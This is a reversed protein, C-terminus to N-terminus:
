RPQCSACTCFRQKSVRRFSLLAGHQKASSVGPSVTGDNGQGPTHIDIVGKFFVGEAISVPQAIVNGILSGESGINVRESADINGQVEGLVVVERACTDASVQGNRGVTVRSGPLNITKVKGDMYLSESGIVEDNVELSKDIRTPHTAAPPRCLPEM